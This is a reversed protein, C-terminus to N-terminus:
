SATTQTHGLGIAHGIEHELVRTFNLSQRFSPAQDLAARNEFIVYGRSFARFSTGNVTGGSGVVTSFWGGGVALTPFTIEGKPDEFTVVGAASALGTFPGEADAQTTMGGWQLTISASVPATWAALATQMETVGNGSLLPSPATNNMYWTVPQGSDAQVWRAPGLM